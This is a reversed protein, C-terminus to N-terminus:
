AHNNVSAALDPLYADRNLDVLERRLQVAESSTDLAEARRGAEALFTAHNNVSAALDPLYADRNLDVLERRLQVAESSTDLAEARRGAEALRLAHNNVSAALDPLHADRNLDVLERRLQVAESSTDLAEARRGAEALRLAHNNVSAALDPLHADRNLDVLERRLQVAESSTDLAEARRGAEALRLAHNNVSAALDPLHADRSLDVLERYLQVAESSTNLAEARRGAEALFTAHNNVSAALRPLYADRSLDVLERRLQVAESSTNLAEARRGAEALRLAHRVRWIARDTTPAAMDNSVIMTTLALALRHLELSPYPVRQALDRLWALDPLPRETLLKAMRSAYRGPFQVAVRVVAEAMTPVDAALAEGIFGDVDASDARAPDAAARGLVTLAQVAQGVALRRFLTARQQGTSDTLVQVALYEALLDPQLTGLRGAAQHEGAPYLGRLWRVWRRGAAPGAADDTGIDAMGSLARLVLDAVAHEDAAGFLAAVGVVRALLADGDVEDAPLDIRLRAASARWYRREHGLVEDLVDDRGFGDAPGGLVAVLAAAHLRLVPADEPYDRDALGAPVPRKVKRAFVEAAHAVVEGPTRSDVRAGLAFLNRRDGTLADLLAAHEHVAASLSTWWPGATRALLLVRVRDGHRRSAAALLQALGSPTRSEAYDVVLLLRGPAGGATAREAAQEESGPQVFECQWDRGTLEERLKLALRTKGFGGPAHVLRVM